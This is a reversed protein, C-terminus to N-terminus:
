CLTALGFGDMTTIIFLKKRRGHWWVILGESSIKNQLNYNGPPAFKVTHFDLSGKAIKM